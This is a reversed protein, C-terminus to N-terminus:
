QVHVKRGKEMEYQSIVCASRSDRRIIWAAVDEDDPGDCRIPVHGEGASYSGPASVISRSNELHSSPVVRLPALHTSVSAVTLM